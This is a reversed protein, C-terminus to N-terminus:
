EYIIDLNNYLNNQPKYEHTSPLYNYEINLHTLIQRKNIILETLRNNSIDLEILKSPACYKNILNNFAYLKILNPYIGLSRLKNTNVDLIQIRNHSPIHTLKNNSAILTQLNPFRSIFTINKLKHDNCNIYIVDKYFAADIEEISDYEYTNIIGNILIKIRM